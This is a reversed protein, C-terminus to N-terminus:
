DTESEIKSNLDEFIVEYVEIDKVKFEKKGGTLEYDEETKYNIGKQFTSGGNKFAQDYIRIQCGLFVPGYMSYCGIANEGPIIDYCKLKDLSFVFANDDFKEISDGKWNCSTYGGFRKNNGSKILVLSSNVGDCKKHFASARDSDVTAKYILNLIVKKHNKCIKKSLFELEEINKIIEGKVVKLCTVQVNFLQNDLHYDDNKTAITSINNTEISKNLSINLQKKLLFIEEDKLKKYESLENNKQDKLNIIEKNLREIEKKLIMIENNEDL